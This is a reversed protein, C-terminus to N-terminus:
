AARKEVRQCDVLWRGLWTGGSATVGAVRAGTPARGTPWADCGTVAVLGVDTEILDGPGPNM